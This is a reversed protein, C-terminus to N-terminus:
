RPRRRRNAIGASWGNGVLDLFPRAAFVVNDGVFGGGASHFGRAGPIAGVSFPSYGTSANENERVTAALEAQASAASGLEMM